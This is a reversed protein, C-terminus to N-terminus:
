VKSGTSTYVVEVGQHLIEVMEVALSERFVFFSPSKMVPGGFSPYNKKVQITGFCSFPEKVMAMIFAHKNVPNEFFLMM